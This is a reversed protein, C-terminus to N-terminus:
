RRDNETRAGTMPALILLTGLQRYGMQPYVTAGIHSSLLVSGASGHSRDARLMASLLASGIGKRRFPARVVLNSCWNSNVAQISSVWGVIQEGIIALYHRWPSDKALFEDPMPKMKAAKAYALALERTGMRVIKAPSTRRPIRILDHIFLPETSLLRYRLARFCDRAATVESTEVLVGLFYRGRTHTRATKILQAPDPAVAIWEEKRYAKPNKREADRMVWVGDIQSAECLHTLSRTFAHGRVFVEIASSIL